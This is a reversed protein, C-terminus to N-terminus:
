EPRLDIHKEKWGDSAIASYDFKLGIKGELEHELAYDIQIADPNYDEHWHYYFGGATGYMYDDEWANSEIGEGLAYQVNSLDAIVVPEKTPMCDCGFSIRSTVIDTLYGHNKGYTQDDMYQAIATMAGQMYLSVPANLGIAEESESPVFAFCLKYDKTVYLTPIAREYSRFTYSSSVGNYELTLSAEGVSAATVYFDWGTSGPSVRLVSEDSSRLNARYGLPVDKNSAAYIHTELNLAFAEPCDRIWVSDKVPEVPVVPDPNPTPFDPTIKNECSALVLLAAM